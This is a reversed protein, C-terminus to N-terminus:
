GISDLYLNKQSKKEEEEGFILAAELKELFRHAKLNINKQSKNKERKKKLCRYSQKEHKRRRKM